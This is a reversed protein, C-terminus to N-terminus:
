RIQNKIESIMKKLERDSLSAFESKDYIYVMYVRMSDATDVKLAVINHTIVRVGGSKGKGKSKVALRIKYCDRGIPTGKRPNTLLEKELESLEAKLSSYRKLLRRAAKKFNETVKIEVNM